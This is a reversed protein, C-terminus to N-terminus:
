PRSGRKAHTLVAKQKPHQMAADLAQRLLQEIPPYARAAVADAMVDNLFVKAGVYGAQGHVVFAPIGAAILQAVYHVFPPWAIRALDADFIFKVGNQPYAPPIDDATFEILIHCRDPRWDDDLAALTRWGCYWDRCAQPRAAYITCGNAYHPCLAGPLKQLQPTDILPDKCCARCPGCQRGPVLDDTSM